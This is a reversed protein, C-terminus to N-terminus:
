RERCGAAMRREGFAPIYAWHTDGRAVPEFQVVADPPTSRKMWELAEREGAHHDADLPIRDRM